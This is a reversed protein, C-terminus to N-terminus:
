ALSMISNSIKEDYIEILIPYKEVFKLLKKLEELSKEKKYHSILYNIPPFNIFPQSSEKLRMEYNEEFYDLMTQCAYRRIEPTIKNTNFKTLERFQEFSLLNENLDNLDLKSPKFEKYIHRESNRKNYFEILATKYISIGSKIDDIKKKADKISLQNLKNEVNFKVDLRETFFSNIYEQKDSIKIAYKETWRNLLEEQSSPGFVFEENNPAKFPFNAANLRLLNEDSIDGSIKNKRQTCIWDDIDYCVGYKKFKSYNREWEDTKPNWIMGLRNLIEIKDISLKGERRLKRQYNVWSSAKIRVKAIEIEKIKEPSLNDRATKSEVVREEYNKKYNNKLLSSSNYIDMIEDYNYQKGKYTITKNKEFM